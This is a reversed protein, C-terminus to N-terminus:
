LTLIEAVGQELNRPEWNILSALLACDLVSSNKVDLTPVVNIRNKFKYGHHEFIRLVQPITIGLGTSININPKDSILKLLKNVAFTIDTVSIYDRTIVRGEYIQVPGETKITNLLAGIFGYTLHKGYANSIRLNSHCISNTRMISSLLEELIYKENEQFSSDLNNFSEDIAEESDKYVSASSLLLSRQSKFHGSNLWGQIRNTNEHLPAANRWCFITSKSRVKTKIVESRTLFRIEKHSNFVSQKYHHETICVISNNESQLNAIIQKTIPGYGFIAIDAEILQMLQLVREWGTNLSALMSVTFTIISLKPLLDLIQLVLNHAWVPEFRRGM